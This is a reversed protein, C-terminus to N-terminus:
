RHARSWKAEAKRCKPCYAVIAFKTDEVICGGTASTRANPFLTRQAELYDDQYLMLGYIIEVRDKKLLVGHVKCWTKGEQFNEPLWSVTDPKPLDQLQSQASSVAPRPYLLAITFLCALLIKM